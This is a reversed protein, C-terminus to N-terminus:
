TWLKETENCGIVLLAIMVPRWRNRLLSTVLFRQNISATAESINTKLDDMTHPNSEYVHGKLHGWLFFEPPSLDPSRPPWLGKSILEHMVHIRYARLHLVHVTQHASGFCMNNQQFLKRLSKSHSQFLRIRADEPIDDILVTHRRNHTPDCV